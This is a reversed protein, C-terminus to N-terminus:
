RSAPAPVEFVDVGDSGTRALEGWAALLQLHAHTEMTALAANFM